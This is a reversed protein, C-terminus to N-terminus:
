LLRNIRDAFFEDRVDLAARPAEAFWARAIGAHADAPAGELTALLDGYTLITFPRAELSLRELTPKTNCGAPARRILAIKESLYEVVEGEAGGIEVRQGVLPYRDVRHELKQRRPRGAM